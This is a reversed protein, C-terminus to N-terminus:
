WFLIDSGKVIAKRNETIRKKMEESLDCKHYRDCQHCQYCQHDYQPRVSTASTTMDEQEASNEAASNTEEDNETVGEELTTPQRPTTTRAGMPQEAEGEEGNEGPTQDHMMRYEELAAVKFDEMFAEAMPGSTSNGIACGEM